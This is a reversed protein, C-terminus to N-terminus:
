PESIAASNPALGRDVLVRTQDVIRGLRVLTSSVLSGAALILIAPTIMASVIALSPNAAPQTLM